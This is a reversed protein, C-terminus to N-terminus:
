NTLQNETRLGPRSRVLFPQPCGLCTLNPLLCRYNYHSMVFSSVSYWGFFQFRRYHTLVNISRITRNMQSSWETSDYSEHYEVVTVPWMITHQQEQGLYRGWIEGDEGSVRTKPISTPIHYHVKATNPPLRAVVGDRRYWCCWSLLAIHFHSTVAVISVGSYVTPTIPHTISSYYAGLVKAASLSYLAYM